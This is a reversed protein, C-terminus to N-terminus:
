YIIEYIKMGSEDYIMNFSVYDNEYNINVDGSALLYKAKTLPIDHYSLNLLFCDPQLLQFNTKEETFTVDVHAYRNYVGSYEKTSDLKEWLELNPYTNVSNITPAGSAVAFASISLGGFAIWKADSNKNTIKQIEKFIPKSTIASIGKAVPRVAIGTFLSICIFLYALLKQTNRNLESMLAIAVLIIFIAMVIVEVKNMYGPFYQQCTKYSVFTLLIAVPISVYLSFKSTKAYKGLIITILIVQIYGIMDIMRPAISYSFLTIKALFEPLGVTVYSLMPIQILLLGLILYDKRNHKIFCYLAVISPLPFLSFFVGAESSNGINRFAYMPAQFFYFLKNLAYGGKEVRAGPYVTQGIVTTYESILVLYSVVFGICILLCVLLISWDKKTLSKVKDWNDYLVWIGIVLFIYGLPVQWAPYLWTVFMGFFFAIGLGYLVKQWDKSAHLFYYVCFITGPASIFYSSFGWWLYYSSFIVLFAGSVAALRNRNTLVYFFEIVCLFGYIIPAFWCFSFAYETPLIAYSLEWPAYILTEIGVYVGNIINLTSTGRMIENYKSFPNEGYTAALISPTTAIFEDSRIPRQMGFVPKGFVDGQGPQILDFYHAISDGHIKNITLFLLLLTGIIWRYKWIFSYMQKIDFVFHLGLYFVVFFILYIRFFVMEKSQSLYSFFPEQIEKVYVVLFTYCVGLFISIIISLFINLVMKKIVKNDLRLTKM